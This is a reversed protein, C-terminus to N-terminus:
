FQYSLRLGFYSGEYDPQTAALFVSRTGQTGGTGLEQPDIDDITFDKVFYKEFRYEGWVSVKESLKYRIFSNASQLENKTIPWLLSDDYAPDVGGGARSGGPAFYNDNRGQSYSYNYNVQWSLKQPIVDVLFGLSFLDTLDKVRTGWDNQVSDTGVGGVVNRLRSKMNTFLFERTYDGYFSFRPIPYYDAGVSIATSRAEKVGYDSHPYDDLQIYAGLMLDVKELVEVSAQSVFRDRNRSAQDFRRLEELLPNVTAEGEPYTEEAANANYNKAYRESRTYSNRLTVWSVPFLDLSFIVSNEETKYVNRFARTLREYNYGLGASVYTIPKLNAKFGFNRKTYDYPVSARGLTDLEWDGYAVRSPFVIEETQNDFEYYRFNAEVFLKKIPRASVFYAGNLTRIEGELSSKPLILPDLTDVIKSNSTHPLFKEDQKAIGYGITARSQINYFPLKVFGTISTNGAWNDPAVGMRVVATRPISSGGASTDTLRFPDDWVLAELKNDFISVGVDGRVSWNKQSYQAQADLQHTLFDIREPIDVMNFRGPTGSTAKYGSKKENSYSLKLDINRTPAIKVEGVLKDRRYSLPFKQAQSLYSAMLSRIQADTAGQLRAQISDALTYVGKQSESFFLKSHNSFSHPIQNWSLNLYYRGYKGLRLTSTQDNKAIGKANAQLFGIKSSLYYSLGNLVLNERYDRYELYKNSLPHGSIQYFGFDVEGESTTQGQVQLFSFLVLSLIIFNLSKKKM